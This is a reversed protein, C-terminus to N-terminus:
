TRKKRMIENSVLDRIVITSFVKKELYLMGIIAVLLVSCSNIGINKIGENRM